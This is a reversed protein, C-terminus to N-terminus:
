HGRLVARCGGAGCSRCMHLHYASRISLLNLVPAGFPGPICWSEGSGLSPVTVGGAICWGAYWGAPYRPGKWREHERRDLPPLQFLSFLNRFYPLPIPTSPKRKTIKRNKAQNTQGTKNYTHTNLTGYGPSSYTGLLNFLLFREEGICYITGGGGGRWM